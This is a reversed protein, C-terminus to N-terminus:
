SITNTAKIKNNCDCDHMCAFLQQLCAVILSQAKMFEGKPEQVLKNINICSAGSCGGENEKEEM